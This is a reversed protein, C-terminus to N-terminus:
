MALMPCIINQNGRVSTARWQLGEVLTVRATPVYPLFVCARVRFDAFALPRYANLVAIDAVCCVAVCELNLEPKGPRRPPEM